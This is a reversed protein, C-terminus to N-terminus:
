SILTGDEEVLTGVLEEESASGMAMFMKSEYSRVLDYISQLKKDRVYINHLDEDSGAARPLDLYFLDFFLSIPEHMYRMALEKPNRITQGVAVLEVDYPEPFIRKFEKLARKGHHSETSIFIRKGLDFKEILKRATIANQITTASLDDKPVVYGRRTQESYRPIDWSRFYEVAEEGQWKGVFMAAPIEGRCYAAAVPNMREEINTGGLAIGVDHKYTM